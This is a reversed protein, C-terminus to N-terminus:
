ARRRALAALVALLPLSLCLWALADMVGDGLLALVLGTASIAAILAPLALSRM